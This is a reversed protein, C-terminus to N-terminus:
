MLRSVRACVRLSGPGQGVGPPIQPAEILLFAAVLLGQVQRTPRGQSGLLDVDGFREVQPLPLGSPQEPREALDLRGDLGVLAGHRGHLRHAGFQETPM